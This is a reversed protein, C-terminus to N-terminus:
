QRWNVYTKDNFLKVGEIHDTGILGSEPAGYIEIVDFRFGGEWHNKRRWANYVIRLNRLKRKNVSRMRTAYQSLAKHQKVEVFVLTENARDYAVIDIELRLDNDCPTSNQDIIEYGKSRLLEIARQEGWIGHGVSLNGNDRLRPM